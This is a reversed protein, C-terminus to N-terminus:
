RRASLNRVVLGFVVVCAVLAQVLALLRQTLQIM